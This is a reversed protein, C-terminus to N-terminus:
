EKLYASARENGALNTGDRADTRAIPPFEPNRHAKVVAATSETFIETDFADKSKLQGLAKATDPRCFYM